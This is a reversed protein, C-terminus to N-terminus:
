KRLVRYFGFPANMVSDQLTQPQGDGYCWSVPWWSQEQLTLSKQLEYEISEDTSITLAFVGTQSDLVPQGTIQPPPLPADSPALFFNVNEALLNAQVQLPQAQALSAANPYWQPEPLGSGHGQPVWRLKYIGPTVHVATYDNSWEWIFQEFLKTGTSADYFELTGTAGHGHMEGGLQAVHGRIMGTGPANVVQLIRSTTIDTGNVRASAHFLYSGPKAAENLVFSGSFSLNGSGWLTDQISAGLTSYGWSVSSMASTAEVTFYNTTDPANSMPFNFFGGSVFKPAAPITAGVSTNWVTGDPTTATLVAAGTGHMLLSNGGWPMPDLFIGLATPNSSTLPLPPIDWTIEKGNGDTVEFVLDVKGQATFNAGELPIKNSDQYYFLEVKSVQRLDITFSATRPLLGGGTSQVTLEHVGATLTTTDFTMLTGGKHLVPTGSFQVVTSDYGPVSFQVGEVPEFGNRFGAFVPLKVKQGPTAIVKAPQINLTYFPSSVAVHRPQWTRVGAAEVMLKGGACPDNIGIVIQQPTWSQISVGDSSGGLTVRGPTSGFHDGLIVVTGGYPASPTVPGLQPVPGGASPSLVSINDALFAGESEKDLTIGVLWTMGAPAPHTAKFNTWASDSIASNDPNLVKVRHRSSTGDLYELYIAVTKGTPATWAARLDVSIEFTNGASVPVNLPQALISGRYSYDLSNPHLNAAGLAADYPIENGLADALSWGVLVQDFNGNRVVEAARTSLGFLLLAATSLVLTTRKM